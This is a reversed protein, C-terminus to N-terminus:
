YCGYGLVVVPEGVRGECDACAEADVARIACLKPGLNIDRYHGGGNNGDLIMVEADLPFERLFVLLDAVTM